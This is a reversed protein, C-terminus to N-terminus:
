AKGFAIKELEEKILLLEMRFSGIIRKEEETTLEEEEEFREAYRVASILLLAYANETTLTGMEEFTRLKDLYSSLIDLTRRQESTLEFYFRAEYLLNTEEIVNKPLAAYEAIIYRMITTTRDLLACLEMSLNSRKRSEELRVLARAQERAVEIATSGGAKAGLSAAFYAVIMVIFAVGVLLIILIEKTVVL